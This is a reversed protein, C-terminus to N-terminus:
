VAGPYFASLGPFERGIRRKGGAFRFHCVGASGCRSDLVTKRGYLAAGAGSFGYGDISGSVAYVPGSKEGTDPYDEPVFLGGDSALGQLIAESSTIKISKKRTSVYNM